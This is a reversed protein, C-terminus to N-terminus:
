VEPEEMTVDAADVGEEDGEREITDLYSQLKDGEIINFTTDAGVVAISASKTDLETEGALGVSLAKLELM